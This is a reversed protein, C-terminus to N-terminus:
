VMFLFWQNQTGELSGGLHSTRAQKAVNLRRRIGEEFNHKQPALIKILLMSHLFKIFINLKFIKKLVLLKVKEKITIFFFFLLFHEM